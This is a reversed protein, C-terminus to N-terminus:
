QISHSNIFGALSPRSNNINNGSNCDSSCTDGDSCAAACLGAQTRQKGIKIGFEKEFLSITEKFSAEWLQADDEGRMGLYPFHHLYHGFIMNCDDMYKRTDLIHTHWFADISKTPVHIKNPYRLHLILFARYQKEVSLAHDISWDQKEEYILKVIHPELNLDIVRQEQINNPVINM